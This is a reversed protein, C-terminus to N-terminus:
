VSRFLAGKKGGTEPWSFFPRGAEVMEHRRSGKGLPFVGQELVELLVVPAGRGELEVGGVGEPGVLVGRALHQLDM